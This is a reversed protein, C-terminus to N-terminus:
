GEAALVIAAHYRSTKRSKDSLLIDPRDKLGLGGRGITLIDESLVVRDIVRNGRKVILKPM